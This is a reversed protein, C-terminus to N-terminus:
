IEFYIVIGETKLMRKVGRAITTEMQRRLKQIMESSLINMMMKLLIKMM